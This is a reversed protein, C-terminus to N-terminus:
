YILRQTKFACPIIVCNNKYVATWLKLVIHVNKAALLKIQPLFSDSLQFVGHMDKLNYCVHRFILFILNYGLEVIFM